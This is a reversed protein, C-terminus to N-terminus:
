TCKKALFTTELRTDAVVLSQIPLHEQLSCNLFFLSNGM